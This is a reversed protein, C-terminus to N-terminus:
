PAANPNYGEEPKYPKAETSVMIRKTSHQMPARNYQANCVSQLYSWQPEVIKALLEAYLGKTRNGSQPPRIPYDYGEM